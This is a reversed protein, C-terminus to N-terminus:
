WHLEINISRNPPPCARDVTLDQPCCVRLGPSISCPIQSCSLPLWPPSYSSSLRHWLWHPQLKPGSASVSCIYCPCTSAWGHLTYKSWLLLRCKETLASIVPPIGTAESGRSLPAQLAIIWLTAFLQVRSFPSLVYARMAGRSMVAPGLTEWRSDAAREWWEVAEFM